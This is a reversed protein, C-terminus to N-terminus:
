GEIIKLVEAVAFALGLFLVVRGESAAACM